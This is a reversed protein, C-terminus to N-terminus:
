NKNAADLERQRLTTKIRAITKRVQGQRAPNSSDEAGRLKIEEIPLYGEIASIRLGFRGVREIVAQLDAVDPGPYRTTIDTVGTQAALQLNQDTFPTIVSALRM